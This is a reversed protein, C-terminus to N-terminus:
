DFCNIVISYQFHISATDCVQVDWNFSELVSQATDAPVDLSNRLEDIAEQKRSGSM